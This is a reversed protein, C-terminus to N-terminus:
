QSPLQVTQDGGPVVAGALRVADDVVVQAALEAARGRGVRGGGLELFADTEDAVPGALAAGSRKGATPVAGGRAGSGPWAHGGSVQRLVTQAITLHRVDDAGIVGLLRLAHDSPSGPEATYLVVRQDREPVVLVECIVDIRGVVPYITQCM